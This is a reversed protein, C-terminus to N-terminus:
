KFFLGSAVANTGGTVTVRLIVHGSLNWVLYQGGHFGSVTRTDLVANTGADLVDIREVRSTTDWDVLYLAVPHMSGDTLNLDFGFNSFSFWGSAIRDAAAAKQLARVDSTSSTWLVTSQGTLSLQAYAPVVNADGFIVQGEAGYVNKWSGQTTTDTRIFAAAASGGAGANVATLDSTAASASGGGSVSVQNTVLSAASPSVNVTVTIPPYSAGGALVDGRTCANGAAPCTWGTGAMSVLTLGAPVTDTVTVTGSTPAAAVNNSVTVTYTAGNQGQTFNSAHTKTIGLSPAGCSGITLISRAANPDAIFRPIPLTDSAAAGSSASFGPPSPAYSLNVTLAGPSPSSYTAYVAFRLVENAFANTNVVEWQAVASGNSVGLEFLPVNGGAGPGTDTSALPAFPGIETPVLQAYPVSGTNAASGGIVAPPPVAAGSNTVNATSVFLRVGPPVNNFVAKLRTGFNTLGGTQAGSPFTFGSESNYISGPVNQTSAAQGAYSTNSAAAVRTKFATPFERQLEPYQGAVEHSSWM